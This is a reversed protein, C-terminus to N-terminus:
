DNSRKKVQNKHLRIIKNNRKVKISNEGTIEIVPYPGDYPSEYKHTKSTRKIFVEDGVKLELQKTHHTKDYQKKNSEKKKLLQERALAWTKHLNTKLESLYNDYTYSPSTNRLISSPPQMIRGFVLEFPTFNTGAHVTQNYSSTAYVLSDQWNIPDNSTFARLYNGLTRHYREVVNSKPHYPSCFIQNIKLLKCIEKLTEGTFSSFNDSIIKEPFGFILFVKEVLNRATTDASTDTVPITIAYKSLDCICTLIYLNGHQNVPHIPGVHDIFLSASCSLPTSSIALPQHTHRSVKNKQCTECNRVYNKVDSTINHWKYFRRISMLMKEYSAHGGLKTNHFNHLIKNIDDIETVEIIKNLFLTISISTNFFLKKILYKFEFHSKADVPDTNIAIHEFKHQVAFAHITQISSFTKEIESETRTLKTILVISRNKDISALEGFKLDNLNIKKKLKHQIQKHVKGQPKDICFFIHDFNSDTSVFNSKEELYYSNIRDRIQPRKTKNFNIETEINNESRSRTTVLFITKLQEEVMPDNEIEIRSLADACVNLKGKKYAVEFQFELLELRWRHIRNSNHKSNFLYEIPKHDTFVYFKNHLYCSWHRISAIIAFLEM